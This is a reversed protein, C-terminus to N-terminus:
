VGGQWWGFKFRDELFISQLSGATYSRIATYIYIYVWKAFDNVLVQFCDYDIDGRLYKCLWYCIWIHFLLKFSTLNFKCWGTTFTSCLSEILIVNILTGFIEFYKAIGIFPFNYLPTGIGCIIQIKKFFIVYKTKMINKRTM